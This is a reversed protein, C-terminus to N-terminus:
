PIARAKLRELLRMSGAAALIAMMPVMPLGYRPEVWLPLHILLMFAPFLTIHSLAVFRERETFVGFAALAVVVLNVLHFLIGKVVLLPPEDRYIVSDDMFLRPYQQVRAALWRLPDGKIRELALRTRFRERQIGDLGEGASVLPHADQDDTWERGNWIQGRLPKTEFTGFLLNQGFGSEQVPIFRGFVVGNRAVWISAVAISVVGILVYERWRWRWKPLLPMLFLALLFPVITTRTLAALGFAVGAPMTRGRGWLFVGLAILFTFLTETLILGAYICSMRALIM